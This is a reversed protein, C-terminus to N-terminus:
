GGALMMAMILVVCSRFAFVLGVVPVWEQRGALWGLSVVVVDVAPDGASVEEPWAM